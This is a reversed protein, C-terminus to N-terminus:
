RLSLVLTGRWVTPNDATTRQLQAQVPLAQAQSRALMLWRSLGEPTAAQLSIRVQEGQLSVRAQPGLWEAASSELQQLAATRSLPATAQLGKAQNQLKLMQQTQADLAAQRAPAERWTQLAPAIAIQWLVATGVLAAALMLLSRERPARASWFSHWAAQMAPIFKPQTM